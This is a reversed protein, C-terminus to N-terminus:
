NIEFPQFSVIENRKTENRIAGPKTGNQEFAFEEVEEELKSWLYLSKPM